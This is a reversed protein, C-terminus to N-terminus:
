KYRQGFCTAVPGSETRRPLIGLTCSSGHHWSPMTAAFSIWQLTADSRSRCCSAKVLASGARKGRETPSTPEISLPVHWQSAM